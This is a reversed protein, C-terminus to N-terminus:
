LHALKQVSLLWGEWSLRLGHGGHKITVGSKVTNRLVSQAFSISFLSFLMPLVSRNATASGWAGTACAGM